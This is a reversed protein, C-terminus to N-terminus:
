FHSFCGKHSFFGYHVPNFGVLHWFSIIQYIRSLPHLTPYSAPAASIACLAHEIIAGNKLEVTGQYQPLQPQYRNGLVVIGQWIDNNSCASTLMGGDIVLKANPQVIIITNNECNVRSTITLTAGSQVIITDTVHVVSNWTTDNTVTKQPISIGMYCKAALVAAYADVLGYGVENNWTGNPRVTPNNTYIYGNPNSLPDHLNVKQTTSEIIDRVQKESLYPNVSLVLAAVGSVHPCASSTGDFDLKYGTYDTTPIFIGPAVVDLQTGYCSGWVWSTDGDCSFPNQSKREGCPSMAGVVLVDSKHSAPYRINTNDENGAAFVVITGKGNRGLILASDIANELVTSPAYVWQVFGWSNSIIDAGNRWAWNFGNALQQPTKNSWLNMSISILKSNPTVGSIGIENNQQASIIGACPTGHNCGGWCVSPTKGSEADYGTGYINNILDPHDMKVGNDFVAVRIQPSGTTISWAQEAKIDIGSIGGHQGTNKLNWQLDFYPDNSAPLVCYLLEPEACEFLGTEYFLNAADVAGFSTKRGCSLTIWLPMFENYGLVEISYKKALDFLVNKDEARFLKIYFNNSVGLKRETTGYIPAIKIINGEAPNQIIKFYDTQNLPESFEIETIFIEKNQEMKTNGDFPIVHQRTYSITENKKIFDVDGVIKRINKEFFDGESIVSIRSYNIPLYIKEDKYYYFHTDSQQANLSLAFFVFITWILYKQKM